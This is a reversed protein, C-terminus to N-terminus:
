ATGSRTRRCRKSCHPASRPFAFGPLSPVIVTFADATDGGYRSPNALRGALDTLELFTSPWGHTLILPFADAREADFRLYHVPTGDITAFASPLANIAAEHSRWDYDTAWYEVLSRLERQSTGAEWDVDPWTEAWRTARLRSRLDDLDASSM